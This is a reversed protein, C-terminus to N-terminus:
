RSCVPLEHLAQRARCAAGLGARNIDHASASWDAALRGRRSFHLLDDDLCLEECFAVVGPPHGSDSEPAERARENMEETFFALHIPSSNESLELFQFIVRLAPGARGDGCSKVASM